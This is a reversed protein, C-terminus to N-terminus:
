ISFMLSDCNFTIFRATDLSIYDGGCNIEYSVTPNIEESLYLKLASGSFAERSIM